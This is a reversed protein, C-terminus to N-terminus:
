NSSEETAEERKRRTPLVAPVELRGHVRKAFVKASDEKDFWFRFHYGARSGLKQNELGEKMYDYAGSASVAHPSYEVFDVIDRIHM